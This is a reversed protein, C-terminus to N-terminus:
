GDRQGDRRYGLAQRRDHRNRERDTNLAHCCPMHQDAPEWRNLRQPARGDNAGVLRPREGGAHHDDAFQPSAVMFSQHEGGRRATVGFQVLVLASADSVRGFECDQCGSGFTGDPAAIDLLHTRPQEDFREISIALTHGHRARIAEEVYLSGDFDEQRQTFPM